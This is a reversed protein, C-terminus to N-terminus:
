QAELNRLTYVLLNGAYINRPDDALIRKLCYEAKEFQSVRHYLTCLNLSQTDSKYGYLFAKELAEIAKLFQKSNNYLFGLGVYAQPRLDNISLAAQFAHRADELQELKLYSHGLGEYLSPNEPYFTLGKKYYQVAEEAKGIFKLYYAATKILNIDKPSKKLM